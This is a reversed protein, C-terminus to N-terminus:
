ENEYSTSRYGCYGGLNEFYTEVNNKTNRLSDPDNYKDNLEELMDDTCSPCKINEGKTFSINYKMDNAYCTTSDSKATMGQIALIFILLGMSIGMIILAYKGEKEEKAKKIKYEETGKYKEAKEVLREITGLISRDEANLKKRYDDSAYYERDKEEKKRVAKIIREEKTEKEDEIIFNTGCYNCTARELDKNVEVNANCNPCKLKILKM